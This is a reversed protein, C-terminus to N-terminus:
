GTGPRHLRLSRQAGRRVRRDPTGAAYGSSRHPRLPRPIGEPPATGTGSGMGQFRTAPVCGVGVEAVQPLSVGAGKPAGSTSRIHPKELGFRTFLRQGINISANHDANGRRSCVPCYFLPAGPQYAIPLEGRGYRAVPSGCNACLRSTNCPNVRSTLIGEEWAKYKAYEFIRGRLWYSRKENARRSYRGRVPRFRGLHEFVIVTAGHEQAFQIIRRSVRHAADKDLHRIKAWLDKNDQEGEAIVGTRSRNRAIRGLLRKRRGHLERGGRIFCSAVVTGDATQITCVALTDNVNLDVACVRLNPDQELQDEIKPPKHFTKSIPTHLWWRKGKRVVQPSGAKWDDPVARGSLRFRVWRWTQGDWLKVTIRKDTRDKRMGDYLNVSRNWTRPPVPPHLIVRKGKSKAKEKQKRWRGLSSFFSRASGIATNIAARRFMAPINDGIQSLPTEPDPNRKTTHTLRELATLAAKNSLELVGPHVQIVQFYFAVVRNFLEQTTEFWESIGPRHEIKQRITKTASAM